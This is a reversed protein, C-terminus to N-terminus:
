SSLFLCKSWIGPNTSTASVTSIYDAFIPVKQTDVALCSGGGPFQRPNKQQSSIRKSHFTMSQLAGHEEHPLFIGHEPFHEIAVCAEHDQRIQQSAVQRRQCLIAQGPRGTVPPFDEATRVAFQRYKWHNVWSAL